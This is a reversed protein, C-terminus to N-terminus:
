WSVKLPVATTGSSKIEKFWGLLEEGAAMPITKQVGTGDFVVVINGAASCKIRRAAKPARGTITAFAASLDTDSAISAYPEVHEPIGIELSM